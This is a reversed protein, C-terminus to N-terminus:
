GKCLMWLKKEFRVPRAMFICFKVKGLLLVSSFCFSFRVYTKFQLLSLKSQKAKGGKNRKSQSSLAKVVAKLPWHYKKNTQQQQQKNNVLYDM